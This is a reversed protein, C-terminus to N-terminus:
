LPGTFVYVGGHDSESPRTPDDARFSGVALDDSGDGDVDGLVRVVSALDAPDFAISVEADDPAQVSADLDFFVVVEGAGRAGVALDTAGDGDLDGVDLYQGFRDQAARGLIEVDAVASATGSLQGSSGYFVYVAGADTGVTDDGQAGCILDDLGDADLDAVAIGPRCLRADAADGRVVADAQAPLSYSGSLPGLVTYVANRGDSSWKAVIVADTIGDGNFDGSDLYYGSHGGSTAGETNHFVVDAEATADVVGSLPGHLIYVYGDGQGSLDNSASVLADAQGDGNIDGISTLSSVARDFRGHVTAFADAELSGTTPTVGALLHMAGVNYTDGPLKNSWVGFGAGGPGALDGIPAFFGVGLGPGPSWAGDAASGQTPGSPQHTWLFVDRSRHTVFDALGDGDVDGAASVDWMADGPNGYIVAAADAAELDVHCSGSGGSAAADLSVGDRDWSRERSRERREGRSRGDDCGLVLEVDALGCPELELDLETSLVWPRRDRDAPGEAVSVRVESYSGSPLEFSGLDLELGGTLEAPSVLFPALPLPLWGESGHLAEVRVILMAHDRDMRRDRERGCTADLGTLTWSVTGAQLSVAEAEATVVGAAQAASEVVRVEEEEPCGAMTALASLAVIPSQVARWASM